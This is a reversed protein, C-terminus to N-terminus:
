KKKGKLAHQYLLETAEHIILLAIQNTWDDDNLGLDVRREATKQSLERARKEWSGFEDRTLWEKACLGERASIERVKVMIACAHEHPSLDSM